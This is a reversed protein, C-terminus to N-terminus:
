LLCMVKSRRRLERYPGVHREYFGRLLLLLLRPLSGLSSSVLLSLLDENGKRRPSSCSARADIYLRARACSTAPTHFIVAM